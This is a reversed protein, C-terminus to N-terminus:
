PRWIRGGSMVDDVSSTPSAVYMEPLKFAEHTDTTGVGPSDHTSLRQNAIV